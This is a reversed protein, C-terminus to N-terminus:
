PTGDEQVPKVGYAEVLAGRSRRWWLPQLAAVSLEAVRSLRVLKRVARAAVSSGLKAQFLDNCFDDAPEWTKVTRVAFGARRLLAALSPPTFHYLHDPPSLWSWSSGTLEAMLSDLNPSQVVLLGGPRLIRRIETLIAAMDPVHELVDYMTVVDFTADPFGINELYDSRVDFGFTARAYDACEGNLEVGTVDYGARAAESLFKGINCGIDLLRGGKVFAGIDVLQRRYRRSFYEQRSRYADVRGAVPYTERNVDLLVGPEPFPTTM